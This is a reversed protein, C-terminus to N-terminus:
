KECIVTFDNNLYQEIIHVKGPRCPIAEIIKLVSPPSFYYYTCDRDPSREDLLSFAVYQKSIKMFRCIADAFFADNNGLNLNFIGSAYVVDFSAEGFPNESFIDLCHFEGDLKKGEACTIMKPLIDVGTYKVNIGTETLYELLNGLGCGVDLISKGALDINEAFASFRIKQADASEWGLKAYDPLNENLKPEYYSQIVSLKSM